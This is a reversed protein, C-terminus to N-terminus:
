PTSVFTWAGNRHQLLKSWGQIEGDALLWRLSTAWNGVFSASSGADGCAGGQTGLTGSYQWRAAHVWGAATGWRMDMVQQSQVQWQVNRNDGHHLGWMPAKLMNCASAIPSICLYVGVNPKLVRLLEAHLKAVVENGDCSLADYTGKDVVADFSGAAHPMSLVDEVAWSLGALETRSMQTIVSPSIDNAHQNRFGKAWLDEPLKSNGSGIHLIRSRKALPLGELVDLLPAQFLEFRGYWEFTTEDRESYRKEWYTMAGYPPPATAAM